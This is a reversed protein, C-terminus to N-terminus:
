KKSKKCKRYICYSGGGILGLGIIGSIPNSDETTNTSINNTEINEVPAIVVNNEEKEEEEITIEISDIKENITSATITVSGAKLAVVKGTSSVIAINEDSSKWIINKDNTNAPTITATLTETEGVEMIALSENIDISSANIVTEEETKTKVSSESTTVSQNNNSNSSSTSSNQSSSSESSSSVSSRSNSLSSTSYSTQSASYPCGGNEHLHPPNGGCHYHYYGLGSKNQNDRHGGSSDTRGSHAFSSGAITIILFLITIITLVKKSNYKM